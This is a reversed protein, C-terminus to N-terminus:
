RLSSVLPTSPIPPDLWSEGSTVQGRWKWSVPSVSVSPITINQRGVTPVSAKVDTDNENKM